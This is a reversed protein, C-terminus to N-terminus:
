NNSIYREVLSFLQEPSFPKRVAAQYLGNLHEFRTTPLSSMLVVPVEAFRPDLRMRQLLTSGDMVPMMMDLLILQPTSQEMLGWAIKGNMAIVVHFGRETLLDSM